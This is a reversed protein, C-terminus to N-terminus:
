FSDITPPFQDIGGIGEFEFAGMDPATGTGAPRATGNFDTNPAGLAPIVVGGSEIPTITGSPITLNTTSVFPPLTNGTPPVSGADNNANGVSSVLRWDAVAVSNGTGVSTGLKGVFNQPHVPVHYANNNLTMNTFNYGAPFWVAMFNSATTTSTYDVAFINNRVAGTVASGTVAFAAAAGGATTVNDYTGYMYVSNYNVRHNTGGALRIGFANWTTSTNSYNLTRLDYIVNNVIRVSDGSNINIGYAGWGGTNINKVGWIRNREVVAGPSTGLEVASQTTATFSVLNFIENGRIQVNRTNTIDIGRFIVFQATDTSGITSNEVVINSNTLTSAGRAYIGYYARRIGVNSITFNQLSDTTAFTTIAGNSTVIGFTSLVTSSGGIVNANSISVNRVPAGVESRVLIAASNDSTSNSRITLNRANAASNAGNIHFHNVGRLVILANSGGFTGQVVVNSRSTDPRITIANTASSGPRGFITLPFSEGTANTYLTDILLFTAPGTILGSNIFNAAVTLSPFDAVGSTGVRYTGNINGLILYRFTSTPPIANTLQLGDGGLPLTTITGSASRVALYYEITDFVAVGGLATHSITFTYSNGSVTALSDVQWATQSLKKYFVRATGAVITSATDAIIASLPRTAVTALTDSLPTHTIQAFLRGQFEYAGIDPTTTSRPAGVIDNSVYSVPTGLNDLAVNTPVLLANTLFNAPQSVSGADRGTATNWAAITAYDVNPTNVRFIPPPTTGGIRYNNNSSQLSDVQSQDILRFLRFNAPLNGVTPNVEFHNNRVVIRSWAPTAVSGGTVYFAAQITSTSTTNINYVVTNNIVEIADRPNMPTLVSTSFSGSISIPNITLATGTIASAQFGNIVNNFVRNVNTPVLTDMNPNNVLIGIGSMPGFIQNGSIETGINNATWVAAGTTANVVFGTFENGTIAAGSQNLAYVSRFVNNTFRNTAVTNNSAFTNSAPGDLWLAYYFGNFSNNLFLGNSGRYIIGNNFTSNTQPVDIFSCGIVEGNTAANAFVLAGQSSAGPNITRRFTLAQFSIRSGSNIVFHSRNVTTASATDQILVVDSALGTLSTFTVGANSPNPFNGITYRGIYTGPNIQFTVPGTVGCQQLATVADQISLYSAGAGGVTYNGSLGTCLSLTLTDNTVNNDAGLGNANSIWTRLSYTGLSPITLPTVFTHDYTQGATLPPSISVNNQVVPPDNNLQYAIDVSAIPDAAVSQVRTTVTNAGLALTTPAVLAAVRADRGTLPLIGLRMNPRNVSVDTILPNACVGAADARYWISSNFTTPTMNVVANTTWATNNFCTEIVINSTGDWLFNTTFPHTNWGSVETYSPVTYVTTLPGVFGNAVTFDTQTTQGIRVTFDTLAVGQITAVDFALSTIFGPGGGAATIESALILFQHRAGWYFNGYPAPYTTNSVTLTGTGITVINQAKLGTSSVVLFLLAWLFQYFRLNM